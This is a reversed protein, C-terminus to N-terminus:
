VRLDFEHKRDQLRGGEGIRQALLTSLLKRVQAELCPLCRTHHQLDVNFRLRPRRERHATQAEHQDAARDADPRATRVVEACEDTTEQRCDERVVRKHKAAAVQRLLALDVQRETDPGRIDDQPQHRQHQDPAQKATSKTGDARSGYVPPKSRGASGASCCHAVAIIRATEKAQRSVVEMADAPGSSSSGSSSRLPNTASYRESTSAFAVSVRTSAFGANWRPRELGCGRMGGPRKSTVQFPTM